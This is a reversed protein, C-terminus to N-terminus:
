SPLSKRHLTVCVTSCYHFGMQHFGPGKIVDNCQICRIIGMRSEVAALRLARDADSNALGSFRPVANLPAAVKIAVEAALKASEKEKKQTTAQLEKATKEQEKLALAALEAAEDLPSPVGGVIMHSPHEIQTFLHSVPTGTTDTRSNSGELVFKNSRRFVRLFCMCKCPREFHIVLSRIRRFMM